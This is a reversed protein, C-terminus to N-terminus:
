DKCCLVGALSVVKDAGWINISVETSINGCGKNNTKGTHEGFIYTKTPWIAHACHSTEFPGCVPPASCWGTEYCGLPESMDCGPGNPNQTPPNSCNNSAAVFPKSLTKCEQWTLRTKLDLSEGNRMCIHWGESCLDEPAQCEVGIDDGCATNTREARLSMFGFTGECAAVGPWHMIDELEDRSGDSCGVPDVCETCTM